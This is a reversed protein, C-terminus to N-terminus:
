PCPLAEPSSTRPARDRRPKRVHLSFLALALVSASSVPMLIAALLPHIHGGAALVVFSANYLLSLALNLHITRVTRRALEVLPVLGGLGPKSLHVDAAVLSAEAGGHVSIGVDAVALAAADNIGDGVMVVPVRERRLERVAAHKGEPDVGGRARELLGGLEAEIRAVVEPADGSLVEPALGLEILRELTAAAEPRLQDRLAAWGCFRGEVALGVVTHGLALLEALDGAGEEFDVAHRRLYKPSGVRLEVGCVRGSVGGDLREVVDEVRAGEPVDNAFEAALARGVPHKSQSELAALHGVWRRDGTWRVLSPAGDTLTGTKDLVLEGGKALSEFVGANKVLFGQKAARGVAVALTLPTALGLACPCAVILLAVTHEVAVAWGARQSWVAFTWLAALCVAGVFWIAARDTLQQIPAKEALGREVLAIVKGVRSHAGVAEVRVFLSEGLNRTGAHVLDGPAVRVPESEGSLLAEDVSGAGSEVVGDAAIVEGTGVRILNGVLVEDVPVEVERDGDVLRCSFVTFAQARDVAARAWRQQRFQVYRGVLLLFVLATLSDFYAEGTGSVTQLTGAIGGVGLALAIPVDLNPTRARLAAWASQFFERGPILLAIWALALGVWRFLAGHEAALDGSAIEYEASGSYLALSVLMANGACAGAIGLRVLRRREEARHLAQKADERAPHPPYGLGDLARAIAAPGVQQPDYDVSVQSEKLRLRAELVGSLLQPLKEVLWVCAACRVGELLFEVRAVGAENVRVYEALFGPREFAEFDGGQHQAPEAEDAGIFERRVAYYDGLGAETITRHVQECGGCCFQETRAPDRRLPPVDLGCHTCSASAAVGSDAPALELDVV